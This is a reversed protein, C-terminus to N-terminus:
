NADVSSQTSFRHRVSTKQVDCGIIQAASAVIQLHGFDFYHLLLFQHAHVTAFAVSNKFKYWPPM